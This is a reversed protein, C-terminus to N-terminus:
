TESFGTALTGSGCFEVHVLWTGAKYDILRMRDGRLGGTTTVNFTYKDSTATTHFVDTTGATESQGFASGSMVDTGLAAVVVSQTQVGNNIILYEDGSGTAKPLTYTAAAANVADLVLRRNAHDEKKLTATAAPLIVVRDSVTDSDFLLGAKSSQRSM